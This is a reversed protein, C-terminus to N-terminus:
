RYRKVGFGFAGGTPSCLGSRRDPNNAVKDYQKQSVGGILVAGMGADAADPFPDCLLQGKPDAILEDLVSQWSSKVAGTTGVAYSIEKERKGIKERIKSIEGSGQQGSSGVAEKRILQELVAKASYYKEQCDTTAIGSDLVNQIIQGLEVDDMVTTPLSLYFRVFENLEAVTM